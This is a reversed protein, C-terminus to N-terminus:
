MLTNNKLYEKGENPNYLDTHSIFQPKGWGKDARNGVTVRQFHKESDTSIAKAEHIKGGENQNVLQVTIEGIFPWKLHGDSEGKMMRVYVSLHSHKGSGHGGAYIELCLKYGGIHTYFPSSYWRKGDNKYKDFDNMVIEPPPIFVPKPAIKTFALTLDSLTNRLITCQGSVMELHEDKKAELHAKMVQRKMKAQCGAHSFKCETDQLPCNEDLHQKLFRREIVDTSCKNPCVEPYRQCKPWHDNVVKEYTAEYDCHECTFPRKHCKTAKHDELHRRQLRKGCELPCQVDVFRCQGEVSGLKLHRELEGLEGRWECGASKNSCYVKLEMVKRKFFLDKTTKLPAKKCLPCPKGEAELQEAAARSLHKGCCESTQRPDTLLELTVPCFYDQSPTMVFDYEANNANSAM